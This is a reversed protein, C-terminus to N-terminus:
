HFATDSPGRMPAECPRRLWQFPNAAGTATACAWGVIWRWHNLRLCVKGGVMGRHNALGQRGSPQPSRGERRPHILELGYTDLVGLVTPAALCAQPWAQQTVFLRLLRTRAPLRPFLM